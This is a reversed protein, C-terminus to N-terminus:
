GGGQMRGAEPEKVAADRGANQSIREEIFTIWESMERPSDFVRKPVALMGTPRTVLEIFEDNERFEVIRSWAYRTETGPKRFEVGGNDIEIETWVPAESGHSDLITQRIQKCQQGKFSLLYYVFVALSMGVGILLRTVWGGFSIGYAFGGVMLAAFFGMRYYKQRLGFLRVLDFGARMTEEFSIEYTKKM